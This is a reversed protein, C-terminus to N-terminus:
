VNRWEGAKLWRPLSKAPESRDCFKCLTRRMTWDPLGSLLVRDDCARESELRMRRRLWWAGPQFWCFACVIEALLNWVWDWRAIHAQEHRLASECVAPDGSLLAEPLLIVNRRIGWTLPTQIREGVRIPVSGLMAERSETELRRLRLLAVM